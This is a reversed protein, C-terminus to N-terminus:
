FLGYGGIDISSYDLGVQNMELDPLSMKVFEIYLGAYDDTTLSLGTINEEWEYDWEKFIDKMGKSVLEDYLTKSIYSDCYDRAVVSTFDIGTLEVSKRYATEIDSRSYNSEYLCSEYRGHGDNWRDGMELEIKYTM